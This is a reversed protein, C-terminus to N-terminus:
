ASALPICIQGVLHYLNGNGKNWDLGKNWDSVAGYADAFVEGGGVRIHATKERALSLQCPQNNLNDFNFGLYNKSSYTTQVQSTRYATATLQKTGNFNPVPSSLARFGFPILTENNTKASVGDAVEVRIFKSM